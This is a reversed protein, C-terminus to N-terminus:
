SSRAPNVQLWALFPDTADLEDRYKHMPFDEVNTVTESIPDGSIWTLGLMEVLGDAETSSVRSMQRRDPAPLLRNGAAAAM